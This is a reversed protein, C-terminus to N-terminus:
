RSATPTLSCSRGQATTLCCCRMPNTHSGTSRPARVCEAKFREALEKLTDFRCVGNEDVLTDKLESDYVESVLEQAPTTNDYLTGFDNMRLLIWVILLGVPIILLLIRYKKM